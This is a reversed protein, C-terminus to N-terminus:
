IETIQTHTHAHIYMNINAYKQNRGAEYKPDLNYETHRDPQRGGDLLLRQMENKRADWFSSTCREIKNKRSDWWSSKCRDWKVKLEVMFLYRKNENWKNGIMYKQRWEYYELYDRNKEIVSLPKSETTCGSRKEIWGVGGLKNIFQHQDLQWKNKYHNCTWLNTRDVESCKHICMSMVSTCCGPCLGM